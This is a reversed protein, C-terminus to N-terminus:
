KEEEYEGLAKVCIVEYLLWSNVKASEFDNMAANTLIKNTLKHIDAIIKQHQELTM